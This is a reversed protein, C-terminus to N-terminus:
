KGQLHMMPQYMEQRTEWALASLRQAAQLAEMEAKLAEVRSERTEELWGTAVAAGLALGTLFIIVVLAVM